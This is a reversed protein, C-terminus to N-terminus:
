VIEAAIVDPNVRNVFWRNANNSAVLSSDHAVVSAIAFLMAITPSVLTRSSSLEIEAATATASATATATATSVHVLNTPQSVITCEAVINTMSREETQVAFVTELCTGCNKLLVCTFCNGPFLLFLISLLMLICSLCGLFFGYVGFSTSTNATTQNPDKQSPCLELEWYLPNILDNNSLSLTIVMMLLAVGVLVANIVQLVKLTSSSLRLATITHMAVAIVIFSLSAALTRAAVQYKRYAINMDVKQYSLNNFTSTPHFHDCVFQRNYYNMYQYCVGKIMNITIYYNCASEYGQNWVHITWWTGSYGTVV